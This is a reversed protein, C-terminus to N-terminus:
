GLPLSIEFTSGKGPSGSASIAGGHNEVIKKCLALGIGTGEYQQHTVLRQFIKFIKEAYAQEFGQGNDTIFIKVGTASSTSGITIVPPVEKRRYKIANALLNQFLQRLQVPDGQIIPLETDKAVVAGSERIAVELDRLVEELLGNLDTKVRQAETNSINSYRLIADILNTMRHASDNIKQLSAIGAEDLHQHHRNLLLNSFTIIKRVPEKLDHSTLWAYQELERNTQVLQQRKRELELQDRKQQDIDRIFAIFFSVGNQMSRSITLAIYFEEGKRNLAMVEITRNLVRAEGSELYRQMGKIHAEQYAPPIIVEALHRGIAESASWGFLQEAKPNWVTIHSSEDVVIIADPANHILQRLNEEREQLQENYYRLQKENAKRITINHLIGRTYYPHGDKFKCTVQAELLVERGEKTHFCVEIPENVGPNAQILDRYDRFKEQDGPSIYSYISTGKLESLTYGLTTMWANNVYLISGDPAAMHVMDSANDFLDKYKEETEMMKQEEERHVAELTRISMLQVEHYYEDLAQTIGVAIDVQDTFAPLLRILVAKQVRQLWVVDALSIAAKPIGPSPSQEWRDLNQRAMELGAGTELATLFRYQSELSRQYLEEPSLHQVIKLITADSAYLLDLQSRVLEELKHQRVFGAFASLEEM